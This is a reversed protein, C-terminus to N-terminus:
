IHRDRLHSVHRDMDCLSQHLADVTTWRLLLLVDTLLECANGLLRSIYHLLLQWQEATLLRISCTCWLWACLHEHAATQDAQETERAGGCVSAAADPCPLVSVAATGALWSLLVRGQLVTWHGAVVTASM